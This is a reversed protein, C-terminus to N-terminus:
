RELIPKQPKSQNIQKQLNDVRQLNNFTAVHESQLYPSLAGTKKKNKKQKKLPVGM